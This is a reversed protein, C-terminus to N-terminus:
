PWSIAVFFAFMVPVLALYTVVLAALGWTQIALVMATVLIVLVYFILDTDKGIARSLPGLIPTANLIRSPLTSSLSM